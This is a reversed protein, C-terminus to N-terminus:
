GNRRKPSLFWLEDGFVDNPNKTKPAETGEHREDTRVATKSITEVQKKVEKIDKLGEVLTALGVLMKQRTDVEDSVKVSKAKEEVKKEEVKKEEQKDSKEPTAGASKNLFDALTKTFAEFGTLVSKFKDDLVPQLKKMVDDSVSAVLVEFQKQSEEGKSVAEVKASKIAVAEEAMVDCLEGVLRKLEEPKNEVQYSAEEFARMAMMVKSLRAWKEKSMMDMMGMVTVNQANSEDMKKVEETKAEVKTEVKIEEKKEEVKEDKKIETKTKEEVKEEVKAEVKKEEVVVDKKDAVDEETKSKKMREVETFSKGSTIEILNEETEIFGTILQIGKEIEFTRVLNPVFKENDIQYSLGNSDKEKLTTLGNKSLWEAAKKKDYFAKSFEVGIIEFEDYDVQRKSSPISLKKDTDLSKAIEFTAEQNAPVYVLSVENLDVYESFYVSRAAVKAKAFVVRGKWSFTNLDGSDVKEWVEKITVKAKVWLGRSGPYLDPSRSKSFSDFLNGDEDAIGWNNEDEIDVVVAPVAESIQGINIENGNADKWFKHNYLLQPNVKFRDLLFSEPTFLEADRDFTNTSAFGKVFHNGKETSKTIPVSFEFNVAKQTKDMIGGQM